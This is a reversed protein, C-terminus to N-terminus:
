MKAKKSGPPEDPPTCFMLTVGVEPDDKSADYLANMYEGWSRSIFKDVKKLFYSGSQGRVGFGGNQAVEERQRMAENVLDITGANPEQTIRKLNELAKKRSEDTLIGQNDEIKKLYRILLDRTSSM